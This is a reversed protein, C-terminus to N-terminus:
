SEKYSKMNKQDQVHNFYLPLACMKISKKIEDLRVVRWKVGLDYDNNTAIRCITRLFHIGEQDFMHDDWFACEKTALILIDYSYQDM